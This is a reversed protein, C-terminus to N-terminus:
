RSLIVLRDCGGLDKKVTAHYGHAEGLAAVAAGQDFGIEFLFFDPSFRELFAQYFRLGDEGGDLALKPEHALEPALTPIVDARIYPPNSLIYHPIDAPLADAFLDACLFSVRSSLELAEANKKAMELAAASVDVALASTDSRNALVSLAICGSGTCFDAFRANKPLLRCAEEVLLETDARPILCDPSVLFRNGYFYAEGLIHQLPLRQKRKEVASLFADGTYDKEPHALIEGAEMGFYHSILLRADTAPLDIGAQKLALTLDRSTM